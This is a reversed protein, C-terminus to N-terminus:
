EYYLRKVKKGKSIIDFVYCVSLQIGHNSARLNDEYAIVDQFVVSDKALYSHGWEYRLDVYISKGAAPEFVVGAALVLGVQVRNPEGVYLNGSGAQEQYPEFLIEYELEDINSEYLEVSSLRGNGKLWFNVNPGVGLFWKFQRDWIAEYFDIKYIIPTNLYHYIGTNELTPDAIGKIKKGQRSYMVDLQLSFRKKVKFDMTVGASYSFFPQKTFAEKDFEDYTLWNMRAGVKPGIHVQATVLDIKATLLIILLLTSGVKGCRVNSEHLRNM